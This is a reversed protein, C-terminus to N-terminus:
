GMGICELCLRSAKAFVIDVEGRYLGFTLSLFALSWLLLRLRGRIKPGM